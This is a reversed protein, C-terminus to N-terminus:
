ILDESIEYDDAAASWSEPYDPKQDAQRSIPAIHKYFLEKAESLPISRHDAPLCLCHFALQEAETLANVFWDRQMLAAENVSMAHHRETEESKTVPTWDSSTEYYTSLFSKSFGNPGDAVDIGQAM